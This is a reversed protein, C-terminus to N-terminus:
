LVNILNVGDRPVIDDDFHVDFGLSEVIVM